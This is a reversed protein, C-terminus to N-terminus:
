AGNFVMLRLVLPIVIQFLFLGFAGCAGVALLALEVGGILMGLTAFADGTLRGNSAKIEQKAKRGFFVAVFAGIIPLMTWGAIAAVLSIIASTSTTQLQQGLQVNVARLMDPQGAPPVALGAPPGPPMGMSQAVPAGCSTCFRANAPNSTGCQACDM